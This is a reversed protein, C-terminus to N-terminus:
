DIGQEGRADLDIVALSVQYPLPIGAALLGVIAGQRNALLADEHGISGVLVNTLVAKVARQYTKDLTGPSEDHGTIAKCNRVDAAEDIAGVWATMLDFAIRGASLVNGGEALRTGFRSSEATTAVRGYESRGIVPFQQCGFFADRADATITGIALETAHQEVALCQPTSM